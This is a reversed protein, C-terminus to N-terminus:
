DKLRELAELYDREFMFSSVREYIERMYAVSRAYDNGNPDLEDYAFPLYGIFIHRCYLQHKFNIDCKNQNFDLLGDLYQKTVYICMNLNQSFYDAYEDIAHECEDEDYTYPPLINKHLLMIKSLTDEKTKFKDKDM